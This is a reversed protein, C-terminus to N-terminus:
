PVELYGIPMWPLRYRGYVLRKPLLALRLLNLRHRVRLRRRVASWLLVKRWRPMGDSACLLLQGYPILREFAQARLRLHSLADESASFESKLVEALLSYLRANPQLSLASSYSGPHQRYFTKGLPVWVARFTPNAGLKWELPVDEVHFREDFGGVERLAETRVVQTVTTPLYGRLLLEVIPRPEMCAAFGKVPGLPSGGADVAQVSCGALVVDDPLEELRRVPASFRHVDFFDDASVAAVYRGLAVDLGANWGGCPGRNSPLAVLRWNSGSESVFDSVQQVTLDTSGNDVVIVEFDSVGDSARISALCEVVFADDNHCLVIISLTPSRSSAHDM